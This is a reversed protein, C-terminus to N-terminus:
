IYARSADKKVKTKRATGRKCANEDIIDERKGARSSTTMIEHKRRPDADSSHVPPSREETKTTGDEPGM